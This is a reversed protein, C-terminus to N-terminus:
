IRPIYINGEHSIEIPESWSAPMDLHKEDLGMAVLENDDPLPRRNTFPEGILLHEWCNLDNLNFQLYHLGDYLHMSDYHPKQMNVQNSFYLRLNVRDLVKSRLFM